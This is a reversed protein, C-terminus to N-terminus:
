GSINKTKGSNESAFVKKFYREIVMRAYQGARTGIYEEHAVMASVALKDESDKAEAFGIFWDFRADHSRNYISGTKGGLRLRSLVKSRSYGRFVKRATGAKVTAVMLQHLVAATERSIAQSLFRPETQYVTKGTKDEVSRIVTPEAPVGDNLVASVIMAGHLPSITTQRNFGSAIEARHYSDKKVTLRSVSLPLEFSVQHNFGFAEGYDELAGKKLYLAGMKGFVPNVSQAFANQLSITNTYRNKKDTLQRKYLTHKFGNFSFRTQATYGNEEVGAAATVIKFLSAAPYDALLCPDEDPKIKNFGAMTVVCGTAPNMAVIGIYRSNVRDMRKLLYRQLEMDLSTHMRYSRNDFDVQIPNNTLNVMSVNGIFIPLDTKEIFEWQESPTGIAAVKKPAEFSTDSESSSLLWLVVLVAPLIAAWRWHKWQLRLKPRPSPKKPRRATKLSKQYERWGIKKPTSPRRKFM